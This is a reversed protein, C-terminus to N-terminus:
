KTSGKLADVVKGAAVSASLNAQYYRLGSSAMQQREDDTKAALESIAAALGEADGPTAMIASGSSRLLKAGDGAIHGIIPVESALLSGIKSPTTYELFESSALSVLNADAAAIAAPVADKGIRPLFSVNTLKMARADSELKQKAIGDGILSIRIRPESLLIRAARLLTDLGQVAGMAGLYLLEFRDARAGTRPQRLLSAPTFHSEDAPNPVYVIKSPPLGPNRSLILERVSPSIVGIVTSRNETAKVVRRIGAAVINGLAGGPFM